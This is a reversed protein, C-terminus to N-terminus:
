ELGGLLLHIFRRIMSVRVETSTIELPRELIVHEVTLDSSGSTESLGFMLM